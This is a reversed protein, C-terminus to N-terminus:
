PRIAITHLQGALRLAEVLEADPTESVVETEVVMQFEMSDPRLTPVTTDEKLISPCLIDLKFNLVNLRRRLDKKTDSAVQDIKDKLDDKEIEMTNKIDVVERSTAYNDDAILDVRNLIETKIMERAVESEEQAFAIQDKLDVINQCLEEMKNLILTSVHPSVERQNSILTPPIIMGLANNVQEDLTDVASIDQFGQIQGLHM